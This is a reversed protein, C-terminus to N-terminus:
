LTHSDVGPGLPVSHPQVGSGVQSLTDTSTLVLHPFVTQFLSPSGPASILSCCCTHHLGLPTTSGPPGPTEDATIGVSVKDTSKRRMWGGKAGSWLETAVLDQILKPDGKSEKLVRRQLRTLEAESLAAGGASHQQVLTQVMACADKGSLGGVTLRRTRCGLAGMRKELAPRDKTSSVVIVQAASTDQSVSAALLFLEDLLRMYGAESSATGLALAIDAHDLVLLPRRDDRQLQNPTMLFASMSQSAKFPILPGTCTSGRIARRLHTLYLSFFLENYSNFVDGDTAGLLNISAQVLQTYSVVLNGFGGLPQYLHNVLQFVLDNVSGTERLNLYMCPRRGQELRLLTTKGVGDMIWIGPSTGDLLADLKQLEDERALLGEASRPESVMAARVAVPAVINDLLPWTILLFGVGVIGASLSKIFVSAGHEFESGDGGEKGHKWRRQWTKPRAGLHLLLRAQGGHLSRASAWQSRTPLLRAISVTKHFIITPTRVFM